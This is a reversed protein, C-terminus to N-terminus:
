SAKTALSFLYIEQNEHEQGPPGALHHPIWKNEAKGGHAEAVVKVDLGRLFGRLPM